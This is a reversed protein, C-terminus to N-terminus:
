YVAREVKHQMTYDGGLRLDWAIESFLDVLGEREIAVIDLVSHGPEAASSIIYQEMVRRSELALNDAYAQLHVQSAINDLYVVKAIRKGLNQVSIPSGGDDNVAIATLADGEPNDVHVVFVNCRSYRDSNGSMPRLLVGDGERYIHQVAGADPEQRPGAHICGTLDEWLTRYGIESLLANAAKLRSDGAAWDDRTTRLVADSPEMAYDVVGSEVLLQEVVEVYRRGAAFVPTQEFVSSQVEYLQGYAELAVYSVGNEDTEIETTTVTYVGLPYAQGNVLLYPALKDRLFNVGPPIHEFTGNLTLQIESDASMRVQPPDDTFAQLRQQLPVGDRLIRYEASYTKSHILM